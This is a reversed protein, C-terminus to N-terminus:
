DKWISNRKEEKEQKSKNTKKTADKKKDEAEKQKEKKAEWLMKIENYAHTHGGNFAEYLDEETFPGKKESSGFYLLKWYLFPIAFAYVEAKKKLM